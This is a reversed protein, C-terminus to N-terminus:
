QEANLGKPIPQPLHSGSPSRSSPLSFGWAHCWSLLPSAALSPSTLVLVLFYSVPWAHPAFVGGQTCPIGAVPRQPATGHVYQVVCVEWSVSELSLGPSFPQPRQGVTGSERHGKMEPHGQSM